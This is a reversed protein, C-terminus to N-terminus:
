YNPNPNHNPNSVQELTSIKINIEKSISAKAWEPKSNAIYNFNAQVHSSEASVEQTFALIVPLCVLDIKHPLKVSDQNQPHETPM